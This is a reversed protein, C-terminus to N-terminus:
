CFNMRQGQMGDRATDRFLLGNARLSSPPALQGGDGQQDIGAFHVANVQLGVEGSQQGVADVAPRPCADVFEHGPAPELSFVRDDRRRVFPQLVGGVRSRCAQRPYCTSHGQTRALM